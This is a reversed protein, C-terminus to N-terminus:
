FKIILNNVGDLGDYCLDPPAVAVFGRRHLRGGLRALTVPCGTMSLLFRRTAFVPGSHQRHLPNIGLLEYPPSRHDSRDRRDVLVSIQTLMILGGRVYSFVPSRQLEQAEM